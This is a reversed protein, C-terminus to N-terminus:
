NVCIARIQSGFPSTGAFFLYRGDPSFSPDWEDESSFIKRSLQSQNRNNVLFIDFNSLDKSAYAFLLGGRSLAPDWHILNPDSTVPVVVRSDIFIKYIGFKKGDEASIFYISNEKDNFFPRWNENTTNTLRMPPSDISKMYYIEPNTFQTRIKQYGAFAIEGKSSVNAIAGYFNPDSLVPKSTKKDMDYLFIKREFGNKEGYIFKNEDFWVPHEISNEGSKEIIVKNEGTLINVLSIFSKGEKFDQYLLHKGSRDPSPYRGPFINNSLPVGVFNNANFFLPPCTHDGKKSSISSTNLKIFHSSIVDAAWKSGHNNFHIGDSFFLKRIDTIKTAEYELDILIIQFKKAIKRISENFLKQSESEFGLPQTMLVPTAEKTRIVNILLKLNNEFYALSDAGLKSHKDINSETVQLNKNGFLNNIQLDILFFINSKSVVFKWFTFCLNRLSVLFNSFSNPSTTPIKASYNGDIALKLRDNINHMVVVYKAKHVDPSPHNIYLNLSNQTTHARVGLNFSNFKHDFKNLISSVLFPFRYEANVENNETTSGGLFVIGIGDKDKIEPGILVGYKDTQVNRKGVSKTEDIFSNNLNPILSNTYTQIPVVEGRFSTIITRHTKTENIFGAVFDLIIIVIIVLLYTVLHLKKSNM